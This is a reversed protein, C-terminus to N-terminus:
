FAMFLRNLLSNNANNITGAENVDPKPDFVNYTRFESLKGFLGTVM